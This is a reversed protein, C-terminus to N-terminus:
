PYLPGPLSPFCSRPRFAFGPLDAEAEADGDPFSASGDADARGPFLVCGPSGSGVLAWGDGGTVEAGGSGGTDVGGPGVESGGDASGDEDAWSSALACSDSRSGAGAAPAGAHPSGGPAGSVQSSLTRNAKPPPSHTHHYITQDWKGPAVVSRATHRTSERATASRM